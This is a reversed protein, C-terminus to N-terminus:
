SFSNGDYHTKTGHATVQDIDTKKLEPAVWSKRTEVNAKACNQM